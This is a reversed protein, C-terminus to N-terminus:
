DLSKRCMTLLLRNVFYALFINFLILVGQIFNNKNIKKFNLLTYVVEGVLTLILIFFFLLTTILFYTCSNKDLPGAVRDLFNM